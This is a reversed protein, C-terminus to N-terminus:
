GFWTVHFSKIRPLQDDLVELVAAEVEPSLVSPHKAEFCYPCDFNCGLSTVVVLAFHETDYRSEHYKRALYGLEDFTDRVLMRSEVMQKLLQPSCDCGPEDRLFQEVSCREEYSMQLLAGSIGNYVYHNADRQVWINYRSEKM